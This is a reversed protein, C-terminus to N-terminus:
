TPTSKRMPTPGAQGDGGGSPSQPVANVRAFQLNLETVNRENHFLGILDAYAVEPHEKRIGQWALRAFGAPTTFVNVGPSRSHTVGLSERMALSMVREWTKADAGELSNRAAAILRSQVFEDLEARDRDTLPRMNYVRELGGGDILHLEVPVATM